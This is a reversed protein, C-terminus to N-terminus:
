LNPNVWVLTLQVRRRSKTLIPLKNKARELLEWADVTDMHRVFEGKGAKL